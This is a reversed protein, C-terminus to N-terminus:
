STLLISVTANLGIFGIGVMLGGRLAKAFPVRVALGFILMIIPIMVTPGLNVIYMIADIFIKM